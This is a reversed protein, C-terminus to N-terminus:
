PVGGDGVVLDLRAMRSLATALQSCFSSHASLDYTRPVPLVGADGSGVPGAYLVQGSCGGDPQAVFLGRTAAADADAPAITITRSQAFAFLAATCCLIFLLFYANRM